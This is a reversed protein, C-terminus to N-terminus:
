IAIETVPKDLASFFVSKELKQSTLYFCQSM